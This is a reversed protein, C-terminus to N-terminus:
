VIAFSASPPEPVIVNEATHAPASPVPVPFPVTDPEVSFQVASPVAVRSPKVQGNPTLWPVAAISSLRTRTVYVPLIQPNGTLPDSSSCRLYDNGSGPRGGFALAVGGLIAVGSLVLRLSLREGLLVVAGAAAIVPVILQAIAAATASLAPLAAYWLAYGLGSAIGGSLVAYGIGGRSAHVTQWGVALSALALPLTLAFNVATGSLPDGSSRGQLRRGWAIGAAVMLAAASADPAGAGPLALAALGALACALGVWTTTGPREGRLMGWGIMTIQVAGFLILAGMGVPIRVYALSFAIAYAFLAVAPMWRISRARPRRLAWALLALM